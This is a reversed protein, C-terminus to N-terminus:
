VAVERSMTGLDRMRQCSTESSSSESYDDEDTELNHVDNCVNLFDFDCYKSIKVYIFCTGNYSSM